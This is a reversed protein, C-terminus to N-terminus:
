RDGIPYRHIDLGQEAAARTLAGTTAQVALGRPETIAAYAVPKGNRDTGTEVGTAHEPIGAAVAKAVQELQPAVVVQLAKNLGNSDLRLKPKAM